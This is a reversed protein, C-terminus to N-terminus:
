MFVLSVVWCKQLVFRSGSDGATIATGTYLMNLDSNGAQFLICGDRWTGRCCQLDWHLDGMDTLTSLVLGGAM